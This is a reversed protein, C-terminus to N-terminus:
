SFTLTLRTLWNPSVLSDAQAFGFPRGPKLGDQIAQIAAEPNNSM